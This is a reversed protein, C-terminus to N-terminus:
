ARRTPVPVPLGSDGGVAGINMPPLQRLRAEGALNKLSDAFHATQELLVRVEPSKMSRATYVTLTGDVDLAVATPRVRLFLARVAARFVSDQLLLIDITEGGDGAVFFAKSFDESATPLPHAFGLASRRREIWLTTLGSIALAPAEASWGYGGRAHGKVSAEIEPRGVLRVRQGVVEAGDIGALQSLVNGSFVPMGTKSLIAVAGGGLIFSIIALEILGV